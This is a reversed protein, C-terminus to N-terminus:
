PSGFPYTAGLPCPQLRMPALEATTQTAYYLFGANGANAADRDAILVCNANAKWSALSAANANVTGPAITADEYSVILAYGAQFQHQTVTISEGGPGTVTSTTDQSTNWIQIGAGLNDFVRSQDFAEGSVYAALATDALAAAKTAYVLLVDIQSM